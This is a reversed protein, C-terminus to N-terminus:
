SPRRHCVFGVLGNVGVGLFGYWYPKWEVSKWITGDDGTGLGQQNLGIIVKNGFNDPGQIGDERHNASCINTVSGLSSLIDLASPREWWNIKLMRDLMKSVCIQGLRGMDLDQIDSRLGESMYVFLGYDNAFLKKGTALEYM